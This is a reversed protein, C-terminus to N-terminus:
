KLLKREKILFSLRNFVGKELNLMIICFFKTVWPPNSGGILIMEMAFNTKDFFMEYQTM